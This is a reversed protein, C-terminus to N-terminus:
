VFINVVVFHMLYNTITSNADTSSPIQTSSGRQQHQQHIPFHPAVPQSDGGELYRVPPVYPQQFTVSGESFGSFIFKLLFDKQIIKGISNNVGDNFNLPNM